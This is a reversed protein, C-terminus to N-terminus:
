PRQAGGALTPPHQVMGGYAYLADLITRGASEIYKQGGRNNNVLIVWGDAKLRTMLRTWTKAGHQWGADRVPQGGKVALEAVSGSGASAFVPAKYAVLAGATGASANVIFKRRSFNKLKM